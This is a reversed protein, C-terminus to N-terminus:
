FIGFIDFIDFSDFIDNFGSLSNNMCLETANSPGGAFDIVSSYKWLDKTTAKGYKFVVQKFNVGNRKVLAKVVKGNEKTYEYTYKPGNKVVASTLFGDSNYKNVNGNSYTVKSVFGNKRYKISKVSYYLKGNHTVKKTKGKKSKTYKYTDSGCKVTTLRGKKDYTKKAASVGNGFTVSSIAGKKSRYKIKFKVPILDNMVASTMNGHKDYTIDTLWSSSEDPGFYDVHIETPLYYKKSKSAAYSDAGAFAFAFVFTVAFVLVMALINKTLRKNKIM